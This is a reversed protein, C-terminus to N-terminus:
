LQESRFFQLTQEIGSRLSTPAAWGFTRLRTVDLLKRDMGSPKTLDHVFDGHFGAVEAITTYYDLISLDSGIGVNLNQPLEDFRSIGAYVFDALDSALMFERRALGNGWVEVTSSGSAAAEAIKRIAAPIMHSKTAEFKDHRGYLNCPIITKYSFSANERSIYACLRACAIKAIAYGENTPELEGTLVMEERLPNEASRPYMCSSGINLCRPVGARQAGLIVNMGLRLNDTLFSVPAAINAQIGGVTGAAHIVIDPRHEALYEAVANEDMLDLDGRRPALVTHNKAGAHELINRGVM